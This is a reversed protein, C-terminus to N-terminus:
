NDEGDELIQPSRGILTLVWELYDDDGQNISFDAEVQRMAETYVTRPVQPEDGLLAAFAEYAKTVRESM